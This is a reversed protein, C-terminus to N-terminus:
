GRVDGEYKHSLYDLTRIREDIPMEEFVTLLIFLRQLEPTPMTIEFVRVEKKRRTKPADANAENM